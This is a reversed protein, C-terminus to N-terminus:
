SFGTPWQIKRSPREQAIKFGLSSAALVDRLLDNIRLRANATPHATLRITRDVAAENAAASKPVGSSALAISSFAMAATFCSLAFASSAHLAPSAPKLSRSRYTHHALADSPMM